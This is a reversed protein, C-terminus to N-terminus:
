KGVKRSLIAKQDYVVIQNGGSTSDVNSGVNHKIILGTYYEKAVREFAQKNGIRKKLTSYDRHISKSFAKAADDYMVNASKYESDRLTVTLMRSTDIESQVYSSTNLLTSYRDDEYSGKELYYAGDGWTNGAETGSKSLDFGNDVISQVNDKYTYHIMTVRNSVNSNNSYKGGRSSKAM